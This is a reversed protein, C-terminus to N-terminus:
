GKKTLRVSEKAFNSVNYIVFIKKERFQIDNVLYILQMSLTYIVLLFIAYHINLYVVCRHGYIAWIENLITFFMDLIQNPKM